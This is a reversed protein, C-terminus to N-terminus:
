LIMLLTFANSLKSHNSRLIKIPPGLHLSEILAFKTRYPDKIIAKLSALGVGLHPTLVSGSYWPLKHQFFYSLIQDVILRFCPELHFISDLSVLILGFLTWISSICMLLGVSILPSSFCM